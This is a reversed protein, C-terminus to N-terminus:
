HRVASGSATFHPTASCSEIDEVISIMMPSNAQLKVGQAAMRRLLDRGDEDVFSVNNLDVRCLCSQKSNRAHMWCRELERVWDAKLKGELHFTIIAIDEEKITIRLM